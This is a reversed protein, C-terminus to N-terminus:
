YENETFNNRNLIYSFNVNQLWISSADWTNLTSAYYASSSQIVNGQTGTIDSNYSLEPVITNTNTPSWQNLWLSRYNTAGNFIPTPLYYTRDANYILRFGFDFKGKINFQQNFNLRFNPLSTGVAIKDNYNIVGDKNVDEFILQGIRKDNRRPYAVDAHAELDDEDQFIGIANLVFITEVPFGNKLFAVDTTGGDSYVGLTTRQGRLLREVEIDETDFGLSNSVSQQEFGIGLNTRITFNENVQTNFGIQFNNGATANTAGGGNGNGNRSVNINGPNLSGDGTFILPTEINSSTTGRRNFYNWRFNLTWATIDVGINTSFLTPPTLTPNGINTRSPRIVGVQSGDITYEVDSDIEGDLINTGGVLNNVLNVAVNTNLNNNAGFNGNNAAATNFNGNLSASLNTNAFNGARELGWSGRVFLRSIFDFYQMFPESTVNWSGAVAYTLNDLLNDFPGDNTLASSVDTRANLTLSYKNQFNLNTSVFTGFEIVEANINDEGSSGINLADNFSLDNSGDNRSISTLSTLTAFTRRYSTGISSNSRLNPLGFVRTNYTLFNQFDIIQAVSKISTLTNLANQAGTGESDIFLSTERNTIPNITQTIFSNDLNNELYVDYNYGARVNYSLKETIIKTLNLATRGDFRSYTRQGFETLQTFANIDRVGEGTYARLFNGNFTQAVDVPNVIYGPAGNGFLKPVLPNETLINVGNAIPIDFTTNNLAVNLTLRTRPSIRVSINNSMNVIQRSDTFAIGETYAGNVFFRYSLKENNGTLGVSVGQEFANRLLIKRWDDQGYLPSIGENIDTITEDDFLTFSATPESNKYLNNLFNAYESSSMYDNDFRTDAFLVRSNFNTDIRVIGLGKPTKTKILIVGGIARPGYIVTSAADQLFKFKQM